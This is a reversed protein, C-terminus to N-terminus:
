AQCQFIQYNQKEMSPDPRQLNQTRDSNREPAPPPQDYYLTFQADRTAANRYQWSMSFLDLTKVDGHTVLCAVYAKRAKEAPGCAEPEIHLSTTGREIPFRKFGCFSKNSFRHQQILSIM